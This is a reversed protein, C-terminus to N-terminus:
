HLKGAEQVLYVTEEDVACGLRNELVVVNLSIPKIYHIDANGALPREYEIFFM